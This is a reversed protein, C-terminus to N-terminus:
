VAWTARSIKRMNAMRANYALRADEKVKVKAMFDPDEKEWTFGYFRQGGWRGNWPVPEGRSVAFEGGTLARWKREKVKMYRESPRKWGKSSNCGCCRLIENKYYGFHEYFIKDNDYSYDYESEYGVLVYVHKGDEAEPCPTRTQSRPRSKKARRKPHAHRFDDAFDSEDVGGRIFNKHNNQEYSCCSCTGM